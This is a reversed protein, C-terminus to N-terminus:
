TSGGRSPAQIVRSDLRVVRVRLRRRESGGRPVQAVLRDEGLQAHRRAAAEEVDAAPAPLEEAARLGLARLRRADRRGGRLVIVARAQLEVAHERGHLLVRGSLAEVRDRHYLDEHARASGWGASRAGYGGGSEREGRLLWVALRARETGGVM